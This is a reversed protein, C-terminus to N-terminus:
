WYLFWHRRIPEGYYSYVSIRAGVHFEGWGKLEGDNDVIRYDYIDPLLRVYVTDGGDLSISLAEIGRRGQLHFTGRGGRTNHIIGEFGNLSDGYVPAQRYKEITRERLTDKGEGLGANLDIDAGLKQQSLNRTQREYYLKTHSACGFLMALVILVGFFRLNNM